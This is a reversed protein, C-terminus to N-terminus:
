FSEKAVELLGVAQESTLDAIVVPGRLQIYAGGNMHAVLDMALENRDGVRGMLVRGVYQQDRFLNIGVPAETLADRVVEGTPREDLEATGEPRVVVNM